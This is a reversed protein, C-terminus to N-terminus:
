KWYQDVLSGAKERSMKFEKLIREAASEKSFGFEQYIKIIGRIEGMQIGEQKLEELATCMNFGGGENRLAQNILEKSETITGVVLGIEPDLMKQGYIETIKDYQHTYIKRSIDFVTRVDPNRFNFGDSELVQILNMRYDSVASKLVEPVDLMDKLSCPGDWSKEGYYVCVTIVPHLKDGRKMGSLFEDASALVVEKKNRKAIENYEKLYFFADGVLHRLPMGYHIHSQNELGMIVYDVGGCSKKVVDYVRQITEVYGNFKLVSSIDTDAETLDSACIIQQGDFLVANFLDAFRENDRWFNKLITDQKLVKKVAVFVEKKKM